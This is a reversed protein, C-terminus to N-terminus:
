LNLGIRGILTAGAHLSGPGDISSNAYRLGTFWRGKLYDISVGHDWYVGDPRLRAARLPVAVNGSSRGIRASVTLPTGPVGVAASASLYLNDGGISSQRPAYSVSVEVNAPGVLVGAGTGLEAYGQGSAGPFLHYRGEASLRWGGLQRVFVARLDAVADARGHRDSGWLSVATGELTLGQALPASVSARLVPNGDSWSLGHRREDSAAEVTASIGDAYQALAPSASACAILGGVLVLRM